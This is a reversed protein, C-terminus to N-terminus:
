FCDANSHSSKLLPECISATGEKTCHTDVDADNSVLLTSGIVIQVLTQLELNQSQEKRSWTFKSATIIQKTDTM